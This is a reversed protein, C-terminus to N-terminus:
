TNVGGSAGPWGAAQVLNSAYSADYLAAISADAGGSLDAIDSNFMDPSSVFTWPTQAQASTAGGLALLAACTMRLVTKSHTM